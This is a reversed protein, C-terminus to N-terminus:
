ENSNEKEEEDRRSRSAEWSRVEATMFTAKKTDKKDPVAEKKANCGCAGIAAANQRAEEWRQVDKQMFNGASFHKPQAAGDDAQSHQAGM